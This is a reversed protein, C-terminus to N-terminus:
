KSYRSSYKILPIEVGAESMKKALWAKNNDSANQFHSSSASSSSSDSTSAGYKFGGSPGVSGASGTLGADASVSSSDSSGESASDSSVNIMKSYEDLIPKM